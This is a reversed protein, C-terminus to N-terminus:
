TATFFAILYHTTVLLYQSVISVVVISADMKEHSKAQASYVLISTM